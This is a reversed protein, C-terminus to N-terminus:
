GRPATFVAPDVPGDVAFLHGEYWAHVAVHKILQEATASGDRYSTIADNIIFRLAPDDPAPFPPSPLDEGAAQRMKVEDRLNV